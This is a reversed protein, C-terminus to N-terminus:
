QPLSSTLFRVCLYQGGDPDLFRRLRELNTWYRVSILCLKILWIRKECVDALARRVDSSSSDVGGKGGHCVNM